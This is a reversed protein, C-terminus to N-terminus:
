SPSPPVLTTWEDTRGNVHSVYPKKNFTATKLRGEREKKKM